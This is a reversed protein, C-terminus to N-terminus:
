LVKLEIVFLTKVYKKMVNLKIVKLRKKFPKKEARKGFGM